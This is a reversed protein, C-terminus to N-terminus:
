GCIIIMVNIKNSLKKIICYTHDSFIYKNHITCTKWIHVKAETRLYDTYHLISYYLLIAINVILQPSRFWLLCKLGNETYVTEPKLFKHFMLSSLIFNDWLFHFYLIREYFMFLWPVMFYLLHNKLYIQNWLAHFCNAKSYPLSLKVRRLTIHLTAPTHPFSSQWGHPRTKIEQFQIHFASIITYFAHDHFKM